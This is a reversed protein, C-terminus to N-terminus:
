LSGTSSVATHTNAYLPRVRRIWEDVFQLYRGTATLDAYTILRQGFPTRIRTYRGVEHQRIWRTTEAFGRARGGKM